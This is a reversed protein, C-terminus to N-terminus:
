KAVGLPKRLLERNPVKPRSAGIGAITEAHPVLRTKATLRRLDKQKRGTQACELNTYPAACDASTTENLRDSSRYERETIAIVSLTLPLTLVRAAWLKWHNASKPRLEWSLPRFDGSLFVTRCGSCFATRISQEWAPLECVITLLKH